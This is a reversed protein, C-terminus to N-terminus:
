SHRLLISIADHKFICMFAIYKCPYEIYVGNFTMVEKRVPPGTYLGKIQWEDGKNDLIFTVQQLKSAIKAEARLAM